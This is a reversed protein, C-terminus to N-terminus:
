WLLRTYRLFCLSRQVPQDCPNDAITRSRLSALGGGPPRRRKAGAAENHPPKRPPTWRSAPLKNRSRKCYQRQCRPDQRATRAREQRHQTSAHCLRFLGIRRGSSVSGRRPRRGRADCLHPLLRRVQLSFEGRHADRCAASQTGALQNTLAEALTAQAVLRGDKETFPTVNQRIGCCSHSSLASCSARRSRVGSPGHGTDHWM